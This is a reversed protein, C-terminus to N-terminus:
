PHRDFSLALISPDVSRELYEWVALAEIHERIPGAAARIDATQSTKTAIEHWARKEEENTELYRRVAQVLPFYESGPVADQVTEHSPEPGAELARSIKLKLKLSQTDKVALKLESLQGIALRVLEPREVIKIGAHFRYEDVGWIASM